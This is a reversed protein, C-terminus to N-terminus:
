SAGGPMSAPVPRHVPMASYLRLGPGPQIQLASVDAAGAYTAAAGYRSAFSGPAEVARRTFLETSRPRSNRTDPPMPNRRGAVRIRRELEGRRFGSGCIWGGSASLRFAAMFGLSYVTAVEPATGNRDPVHESGIRGFLFPGPNRQGSAKVSPEGPGRRGGIARSNASHFPDPRSGARGLQTYAVAGYAEAWSVALEM